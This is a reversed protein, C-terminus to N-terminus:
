RLEAHMVPAVEAFFRELHGRTTAADTFFGEFGVARLGAGFGGRHARLKLSGLSAVGVEGLLHDLGAARFALGAVEHRDAVAPDLGGFAFPVVRAGLM